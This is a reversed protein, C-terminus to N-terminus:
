AVKNYGVDFMKWTEGEDKSQGIFYTVLHYEVEGKHFYRSMRVVCQWQDNETMLNVMKLAPKTEAIDSQTRGRLGQVHELYGTKGGYFKIVSAPALGAYNNWDEYFDVKVLSDAFFLARETIKATDPQAHGAMSAFLFLSGSLLLNRIKM